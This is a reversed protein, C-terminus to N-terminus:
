RILRRLITRPEEVIWVDNASSGFVSSLNGSTGPIATVSWAGGSRHLITGQEGVVWVDGAGTGWIRKLPPPSALPLTERKWTTGNCFLLVGSALDQTVGSAWINNDDAGWIGKLGPVDGAALGARMELFSVGGDTSRLIAGSDGVVWVVGTPSEWVDTLNGPATNPVSTWTDGDGKLLVKNNGVAWVRDSRTAWISRLKGTAGAKKETWKGDAFHDIITDNGVRWVDNASIGAMGYLNDSRKDTTWEVPWGGRGGGAGSSRLMLGDDGTFWAEGSPAAFVRNLTGDPREIRCWGDAGPPCSKKFSAVVRTPGKVMVSCDVSGQCGERWGQFQAPFMAAARLTLVAGEVVPVTCTATCRLPPEVGTGTVEGEGGDPMEVTFACLSPSRATLVVKVEAEWQGQVDLTQSGSWAACGGLGLARVAVTVEGRAELPLEVGFRDVVQGLPISRTAGSVAVDVELSTTGAPVGSLQVVLLTPYKGCGVLLALLLLLPAARM